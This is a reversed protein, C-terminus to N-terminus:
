IERGTQQGAEVGIEGYHPWRTACLDCSFDAALHSCFFGAPFNICVFTSDSSPSNRIFNKLPFPYHITVKLFSTM